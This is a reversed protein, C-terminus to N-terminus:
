KKAISTVQRQARWRGARLRALWAAVLLLLWVAQVAGGGGGEEAAPQAQVNVTRTVAAAANGSLDTVTYTLTYSGLLANNVTGATVIRSTLDGDVADTATAGPDNFPTDITINMTAEGRLTLTPPTSDGSGFNGKGDNIFLTVDTGGIVLDVRDDNSFKGAAVGRASPTALQQPHLVFTGNAAGSNTFIRLGASNLALVDNRDDLDVDRVLLASTAAAGLEDSVFLQGGNAAGNLWVLTTPMAPATATERGFVLDARGDANFDGTAVSSTPGTTLTRALTFVGGSNGYVTADGDANALVLEPLADGLLDVLLVDRTDGVGIRPGPTFTGGSGTNVLLSNGGANAFVLDVFGDGNVDAASVARSDLTAAGLAATTFAGGAALFARDPAGAAAAVVIDLDGDRDLDVIAVDTGLAEGGLSTPTPTLMRHASNTPDAINAFLVLGQATGTAVALDDFKDGDFDAAAIARASVGVIRQEPSSSVRQAVSLSATARNNGPVEDIAPGGTATVTAQGFVDGAFGGRGTLTVTTTAGGAVPGLACTLITQNGSPATTCGTTTPTDFRFPVDGNFVGELAVGPAAVNAARNVVSITWTAVADLAVPSPAASLTVALDIRGAPIVTLKLQGPVHTTADAVSFVVTYQGVSAGLQPTGSLRGASSLTVGPPLGSTIAYTISGVPTDADTVFKTLDIDLAAGETGTQEPIAAVVPANDVAQVTIQYQLVIPAATGDTVQMTVDHTGADAQTPIGAITAPANFKLWAPLKTASIQLADGDPDSAALTYSYTVGETGTTAPANSIFPPDNVATVDITVTATTSSATGDRAQYRFSTSGTFNAPPAYNFSGDPNLTLTGNAVNNILVATLTTAGDPDTDNALVGSAAPVALVTDEATTYTDAQAAPPDNVANVTITVTATSSRVTGDDAQYTFTVAGNFLATPVFSFSGNANLTLTGSSANAVLVATLSDNEPDTDNDLVGNNANVNLTQGENISYADNAAVPADNAGSITLAVTAPPSLAGASDRARYRFQQNGSFNAAPAYSFSGDANLTLTGQAVNEVLVATLPGPDTDTDNALVGPAAVDLTADEAGSYADNAAVPPTNGPPAVTITVTAVNSQVMGDNVAYTFSDNGTFLLNPLYFFGGNGDLVLAGNQTTSVLVASYSAQNGGSDNVLVGQNANVTLPFGPQAAYADDAATITQAHLAPVLALAAAGALMWTLVGTALARPTRM